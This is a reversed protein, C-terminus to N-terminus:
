SVQNVFIRVKALPTQLDTGFLYVERTVDGRLTLHVRPNYYVRLEVQAGPALLVSWESPGERHMRMNFRPGEQGDVVIAAETCGCSTDLDKLVLDKDGNNRVIFSTRVEGGQVSVEGFDYSAPQVELVQKPKLDQEPEPRSTTWYLGFGVAVVGFILSILWFNNKVDLEKTSPM